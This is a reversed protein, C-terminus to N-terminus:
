IILLVKIKSTKINNKNKRQDDIKEIEQETGAINDKQIKFPIAEPNLELLTISHRCM